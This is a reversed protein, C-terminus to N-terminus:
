GLGRHPPVRLGDGPADARRRLYGAPRRDAAPAALAVAAAFAAPDTLVHDAPLVLLLVDSGARRRAALAAIATAPATNRGEPELILAPECGAERLQGAM